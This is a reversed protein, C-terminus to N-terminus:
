TKKKDLGGRGSPSIFIESDAFIKADSTAYIKTQPFIRIRIFVELLDLLRMLGRLAQPSHELYAEATTLREELLLPLCFIRADYADYLGLACACDCSQKFEGAQAM